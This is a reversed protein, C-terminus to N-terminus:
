KVRVFRGNQLGNKVSGARIRGASIIANQQPNTTVRLYNGKPGRILFNVNGNNKASKDVLRIGQKLCHRLFANPNNNFLRATDLTKRTGNTDDRSVMVKM